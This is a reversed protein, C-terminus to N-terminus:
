HDSVTELEELHKCGTIFLANLVSFLCAQDTQGVMFPCLQVGLNGQPNTELVLAADAWIRGEPAIKSMRGDGTVLLGETPAQSERLTALSDCM